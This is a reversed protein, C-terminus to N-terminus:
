TKKYNELPLKVIIMKPYNTDKHTTSAIFL